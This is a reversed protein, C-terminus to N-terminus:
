GNSQLGSFLSSVWAPIEEALSQVSDECRPARHVSGAMAPPYSRQGPGTVAHELPPLPMGVEIASALLRPTM